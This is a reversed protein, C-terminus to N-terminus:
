GGDGPYPLDGTCVAASEDVTLGFPTTSYDTYRTPQIRRAPNILAHIAEHVPARGNLRTLGPGYLYMVVGGLREHMPANGWIPKGDKDRVDNDFM